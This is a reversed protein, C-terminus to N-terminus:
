LPGNCTPCFTAHYNIPTRVRCYPCELPYPNENPLSDVLDNNTYKFYTADGIRNGPTTKYYDNNINIRNKVWIYFLNLNHEKKNIILYSKILIRIKGNLAFNKFFKDIQTILEGVTLDPNKEIIQELNKYLNM